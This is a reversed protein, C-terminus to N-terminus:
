SWAVAGTSASATRCASTAPAPKPVGACTTIVPRAGGLSSTSRSGPKQLARLHRSSGCSLQVM